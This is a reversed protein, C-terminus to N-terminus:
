GVSRKNLKTFIRQEVFIELEPSRLETIIKTFLKVTVNIKYIGPITAITIVNTLRRPPKALTSEILIFIFWIKTFITCEQKPDRVRTTANMQKIKPKLLSRYLITFPSMLALKDIEKATIANTPVIIDAQIFM